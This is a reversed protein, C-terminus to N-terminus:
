QDPLFLFGHQGVFDFPSNFDNGREDYRARKTPDSLVSHAENIEKFKAEAEAQNETNKDPHWKFALTRYAAKINEPTASREVGLTEYFDKVTPLVM